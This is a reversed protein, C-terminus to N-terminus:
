EDELLEPSLGILAATAAVVFGTGNCDPCKGEINEYADDNWGVVITGEGECQPCVFSSAPSPERIAVSARESEVQNPPHSKHGMTSERGNDGAHVTYSSTRPGDGAGSLEGSTEGSPPSFQRMEM